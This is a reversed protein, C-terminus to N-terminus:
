VRGLLRRADAVASAAMSEGSVDSPAEYVFGQPLYGDAALLKLAVGYLGKPQYAMLALFAADEVEYLRTARDEAEALGSNVRAAEDDAEWQDLAAIRIDRNRKALRAKMGKQHEYFAEIDQRLYCTGGTGTIVAPYAPKMAYYREEVAGPIPCGEDCVKRTEVWARYLRLAEPEPCAEVTSPLVAALAAIGTSKIITRRNITRM